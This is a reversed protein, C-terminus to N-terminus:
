PKQPYPFEYDQVYNLLFSNRVGFWCIHPIGLIHKHRKPFLIAM